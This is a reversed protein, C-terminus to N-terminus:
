FIARGPIIIRDGVKLDEQSELDNLKMLEDITTCYKKALNWLTDEKGVVYITVSAKKEKKEEPGEIIDTVWEKNIKYCVKASVAVTARIAITNAEISADINELSAKAIVDMGEKAGKFEISTSFPMEGSAIGYCVEEDTSKYLVIAKIVGEVRVRDDEVIKELISANGSTCIIQEIKVKEDKVYINDKVMVETSNTGQIIGLENNVKSLEVNMSPSYADKLLEIKEKSYVKVKGKIQFEINVVRSEGLDDAAITCESNKVELGLTSIMDSGIGVLEEEKFLYVDDQLTVLEKNEKGKYLVDIKCYCGVYIRDEGVKIEKKHLNMSCKLVEEIEPKDMTVKMMSKGILELDKQGKVSNITEEKKLIQIDEKGEIDKVYEFEGSRYLEWKLALLGDIGVKRENMWSAEIHEIECEVECLVRHEDNDLDLYNAFKETFEVSHIKNSPADSTVEDKPLYFVTYNLQGEVMVKDGLVEKNTISAKGEVGLVEKMDPHSDRILYEGKLVHNSSSEKILQEYQVSEKIIDIQSM